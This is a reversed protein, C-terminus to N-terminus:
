YAHPAENSVTSVGADSDRQQENASEYRNDRDGGVRTRHRAGDRERSREVRADIVKIRIGSGVQIKNATWADHKGVKAFLARLTTEAPPRPRDRTLWYGRRLLRARRTVSM